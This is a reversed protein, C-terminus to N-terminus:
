EARRMEVDAVGCKVAGAFCVLGHWLCCRLPEDVDGGDVETEVLQDCNSDTLPDVYQCIDGLV